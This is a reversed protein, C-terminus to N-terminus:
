QIGKVASLPMLGQEALLRAVRASGTRRFREYLRLLGRESTLAARESMENLVDVLRSFKAALEGYLTRSPARPMQALSGYAHHGMGIYYSVDVVQSDVHDSFFGSVWLSTDGLQRLARVREGGAAELANKLILALPEEAGPVRATREALLNV